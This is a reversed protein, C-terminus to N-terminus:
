GRSPVQHIRGCRSPRAILSLPVATVADGFNHIMDAFLAVSGSVLVVAFQLAATVALIAFSWKIAWLGRESTAISADVVGHTHGHSKADLSASASHGQHGGALASQTQGFGFWNLLSQLM